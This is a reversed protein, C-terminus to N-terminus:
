GPYEQALKYALCFAEGALKADGSELAKQMEVLAEGVNAHRESEREEDDKGSSKSVKLTLM